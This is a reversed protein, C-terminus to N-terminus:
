QREARRSRSFDKSVGTNKDGCTGEVSGWFRILFTVCARVIVDIDGEFADVGGDCVDTTLLVPFLLLLVRFRGRMTDADESLAVAVGNM